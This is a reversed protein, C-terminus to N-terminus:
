ALWEGSALFCFCVMSTKRHSTMKLRRRDLKIDVNQQKAAASKKPAILTDSCAKRAIRHLFAVSFEKLVSQLHVKRDEKERISQKRKCVVCFTLNKRWRVSAADGKRTVEFKTFHKVGYLLIQM